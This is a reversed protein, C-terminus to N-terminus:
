LKLLTLAQYVLLAPWVFSKAVASIFGSFGVMQPYFYVLAGILGLCYAANGSTNQSVNKHGSCCEGHDCKEEVVKKNPM